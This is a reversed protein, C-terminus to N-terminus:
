ALIEEIKVNNRKAHKGLLDKLAKKVAEDRNAPDQFYDYGAGEPREIATTRTHDAYLKGQELQKDVAAKL